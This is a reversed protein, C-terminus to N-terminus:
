YKMLRLYQMALCILFRPNNILYRRWLRKPEMLLRFVWELCLPQMWKPAQRVAGSHFSFAAGVGILVPAQLYRRYEAMWREQKPTGLGVWVIHPSSENIRNITAHREPETLPRFPPAYAGAVQLGPFERRLRDTLRSLTESTSGFFFHRYGRPVSERCVELMLDPGYVRGCNPYGSARSIYVLPMGDATVMGASNHIVKLDAQRQSEMIGHVGTVCVYTQTGESIWRMIQATGDRLSTADVLVGLINVKRKHSRQVDDTAVPRPRTHNGFRDTVTDGAGLVDALEAM